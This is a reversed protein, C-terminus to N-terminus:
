QSGRLAPVSHNPNRRREHEEKDFTKTYCLTAFVSTFALPRAAIVAAAEKGPLDDSATQKKRCPEM